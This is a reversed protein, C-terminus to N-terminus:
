LNNALCPASTLLNILNAISDTLDRWFTEKDHVHALLDTGWQSHFQKRSPDVCMSWFQFLMSPTSVPRVKQVFVRGNYYGREPLEVGDPCRHFTSANLQRAFAETINVVEPPALMLQRQSHNRELELGLLWAATLRKDSKM